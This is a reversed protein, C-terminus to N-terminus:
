VSQQVLAAASAVTGGSGLSWASKGADFVWENVNADKAYKLNPLRKFAVDTLTISDGSVTNKITIVNQGWTSSSIQQTNYLSSLMANVPSTKQLRVTVQAATSASLSHMTSGDAGQTMTNKDSVMEVDIGEDANAAGNGALNFSGGPGSISVANDLFSYSGM